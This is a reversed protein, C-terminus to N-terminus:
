VEGSGPSEKEASLEWEWSWQAGQCHWWPWLAVCCQSGSSSNGECDERFASVKSIGGFASCRPRFYRFTPLIKLPLKKNKIFEKGGFFGRLARSLATFGRPGPIDSFCKGSLSRVFIQPRKPIFLAHFKLLIMRRLHRDICFQDKDIWHNRMNRKRSSKQRTQGDSDRLDRCMGLRSAWRVKQHFAFLLYNETDEQINKNRFQSKKEM